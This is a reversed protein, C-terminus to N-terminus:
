PDTQFGSLRDNENVAWQNAYALGNSAADIGYMEIGHKALLIAHRGVGFGLDLGHQVHNAELNPLLDKVFPDPELWQRRGAETAWAENWAEM